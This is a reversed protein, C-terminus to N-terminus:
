RKSIGAFVREARLSLATGPTSVRWAILALLFLSLATAVRAIRRWARTVSVGAPAHEAVMVIYPDTSAPDPVIHTCRDRASWVLQNQGGHRYEGESGRGTRLGCVDFPRAAAAPDLRLQGTHTAPIRVRVHGGKDPYAVVHTSDQESFGGSASYFVQLRFPADAHLDFSVLTSTQMWAFWAFVGTAGLLVLWGRLQPGRWAPYTMGGRG